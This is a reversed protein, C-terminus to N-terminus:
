FWRRLREEDLQRWASRWRRRLKRQVRAQEAALRGAAYAVVPTGGLAQAELWAEACVADHHDGLVTQVQEAAAALRRAPKGVVPISTEAAYRLEKSRIRIRHLERDTPHPGASQVTRRLARWRRRVMRPLVRAARDVDSPARGTGRRAPPRPVFPPLRAAAELQDLLVLYREGALVAALELCDERRRGELISLLERRGLAVVSPDGSDARLHDALVDADRIKGLVEGLGRLEDRVPGVWTPDLLPALMKLDSRLRRAAVRAQHISRVPPDALDTRMRYDHDLLEDVGATIRARVVDGASSRRRRGAGPGKSGAPALGLARALKARNDPVAGARGLIRFVPVASMGGGPALELELQRFGAAPRSGSSDVVAVVDDDLEGFFTGASDYLALRRRTTDLEAIPRLPSHRVIGRLLATAGSPMEGRSGSWTLETRDLTPGTGGAPLKVTWAGAGAGEGTRHRFTIGRAWLGLHPTDFYEARLHRDSLPVVTPVVARLDPLEFAPDV